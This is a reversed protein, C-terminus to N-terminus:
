LNYVIDMLKNFVVDMSVVILAFIV